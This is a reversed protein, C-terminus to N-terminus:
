WRSLKWVPHSGLDYEARAFQQDAPPVTLLVGGWGWKKALSGSTSECSGEFITQSSTLLEMNKWFIVLLELQTSHTRQSGM